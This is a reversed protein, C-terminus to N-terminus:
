APTAEDPARPGEGTNTQAYGGTNPRASHGLLPEFM